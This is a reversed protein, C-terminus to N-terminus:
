GSTRRRWRGQGSRQDHTSKASFPHRLAHGMRRTKSTWGEEPWPRLDRWLAAASLRVAAGPRALTFPSLWEQLHMEFVTPERLSRLYRAWYRVFNPEDGQRLLWDAAALTAAWGRDFDWARALRALANRDDDDTLALVDVLERLRRMPVEGWSHCAVLIAHHHPDPALIGDAVGSPVAAEFFEQNSPATLGRPWMVRRHVEVALALGPLELPRLHHHADYDLLSKDPQPRFGAALLADQVQEADPALLDLDSLRRAGDPYLRTLIPGKVLM